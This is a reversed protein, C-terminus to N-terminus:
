ESDPPNPITLYDDKPIRVLGQIGLAERDQDGMRDIAYGVATFVAGPDVGAACIYPLGPTPTTWELVRLEQVMAEHAQMIRWTVADLSALDAQREVVAKGSALHGGTQIRRAFWFGEASSQAYAAAFGSQSYTQNFAFVAEKFESLKERPDDRRVVLASRYYGAPCGEVGFDPTGVLGVREHLWLRYPMGCTQSFVLEPDAWVSFEEVDQSLEVPAEIGVSVLEDRILSWYRRHADVLGPHQYM